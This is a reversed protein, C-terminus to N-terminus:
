GRTATSFMWSFAIALASGPHWHTYHLEISTRILVKVEPSATEKLILRQLVPLEVAEEIVTESSSVFKALGAVPQFALYLPAFM